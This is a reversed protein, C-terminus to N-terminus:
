AEGATKEGAPNDPEIIPTPFDDLTLVERPRDAPRPKAREGPTHISPGSFEVLKGTSFSSSKAKPRNTNMM